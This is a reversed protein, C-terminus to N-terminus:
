LFERPIATWRARHEYFLPKRDPHRGKFARYRELFSRYRADPMRLPLHPLQLLMREVKWVNGTALRWDYKGMERLDVMAFADAQWPEAFV